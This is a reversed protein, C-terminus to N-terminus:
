RREAYWRRVAEAIAEALRRRTSAQALQREAAPNSVFELEVLAAPCATGKLVRLNHDDKIGRDESQWVGGLEALVNRALRRSEADRAGRANRPVWVEFGRPGPNDVYNTHISLFLDPAQRNVLNVRANLDDDVDVDFHRDDTRTMFVRAGWAELVRQLELSVHLNIDKEMLGTRGKGGTHMGGHGPDIAITCGALPRNRPATPAPPPVVAAPGPPAPPPKAGRLPANSAIERALELPLKVRGGEVAVPASLRLPVGNVLAHGLGPAFVLTTRGARVSHRATGADCTWAIEHRGALDELDAGGSFLLPFLLLHIV